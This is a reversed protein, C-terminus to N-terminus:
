DRLQYVIGARWLRLAADWSEKYEISRFMQISNNETLSFYFKQFTDDLEYKWIEEGTTKYVEHPPGYVIYVMGRDTQWGDKEFGFLKNAAQVRSYYSQILVKGREFSGGKDLWFSDIAAKYNDAKKLKDFEEQNCIYRLPDILHKAKKIKPYDKDFVPLFVQHTLSDKTFNIKYLGEKELTKLSGSGSKSKATNKDIIGEFYPPKAIASDKEIFTWDINTKPKNKYFISVHDTNSETIEDFNSIFNELLIQQQEGARILYNQDHFPNTKDIYVTSKYVPTKSKLAQIKIAAWYNRNRSITLEICSNGNSLQKRNLDRKVIFPEARKQETDILGIEIFYKNHNLFKAPISFCFATSRDSQHYFKWAVPIDQEMYEYHFSPGKKWNPGACSTFFILLIIIWSFHIFSHLVTRYSKVM